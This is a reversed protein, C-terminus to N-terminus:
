KMMSGVLGEGVKYLAGACVTAAWVNGWAGNACIVGVSFLLALSNAIQGANTTPPGPILPIFRERQAQVNNNIQPGQTNIAQAAKQQLQNIGVADQVFGQPKGPMGQQPLDQLVNAAAEGYEPPIANSPKVHGVLAIVAMAVSGLYRQIRPESLKNVIYNSLREDDNKVDDGYTFPYCAKKNFKNM